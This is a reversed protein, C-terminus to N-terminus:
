VINNNHTNGKTIHIESPITECSSKYSKEASALSHLVLLLVLFSRQLMFSAKARGQCASVGVMNRFRFIKGM